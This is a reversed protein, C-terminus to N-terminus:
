KTDWGVIIVGHNIVEADRVMVKEVTTSLGEIEVMDGVEFSKSDCLDVFLASSNLTGAVYGFEEEVNIDRDVMCKVEAYFEFDRSRYAYGESDLNSIRKFISVTHPKYPVM